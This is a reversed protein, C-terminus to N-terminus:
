PKDLWQQLRYPFFNSLLILWAPPKIDLRPPGVRDRIGDWIGLLCANSKESQDNARLHASKIMARSFLRLRICRRYERPTHTLYFLLSNRAMLYFFYPPREVAVAKRRFHQIPVSFAMRSSWGAKSLRTCLEDDEYYAFLREDLLGTNILATTRILPATGHVFFDKPHNAQMIKADTLDKARVADLNHWDHMAGVFDVVQEDYLAYILPSIIGCNPTGSIVDILGSLTDRKVIADNNLLWIYDANQQIAKKIVVNHGSAFGTNTAQRILKIDTDSLEQSLKDWDSPASGNDLVVLTTVVDKAVVSQRVSHVCNITSAADNWNLISIWINIM